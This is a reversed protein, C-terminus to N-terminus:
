PRSSPPGGRIEREVDALLRNDLTGGRLVPGQPSPVVRSLGQFYGLVKVTGDDWRTLFVVVEDGLRFQPMGEASISRGAVEGGPVRVELVSPGSGKYDQQVGLSVYTFIFSRDVNWDSRVSVVKARVVREAAQRLDGPSLRRFTGASVLGSVIGVVCAVAFLASARGLVRYM